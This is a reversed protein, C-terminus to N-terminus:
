IIFLEILIQSLFGQYSEVQLGPGYMSNIRFHCFKSSFDLLFNENRGFTYTDYKEAFKEM